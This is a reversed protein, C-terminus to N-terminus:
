KEKEGMVSTEVTLRSKASTSNVTSLMQFAQLTRRGHQSPLGRKSSQVAENVTWLAGNTVGFTAPNMMNHM